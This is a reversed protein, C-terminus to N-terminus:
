VPLFLYDLSQRVLETGRGIRAERLVHGHFPGVEREPRGGEVGLDDKGGIIAKVWDKATEVLLQVTCEHTGRVKSLRSSCPSAM